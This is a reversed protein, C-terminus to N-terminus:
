STPRMTAPRRCRPRFGPARWREWWKPAGAAGDYLYNLTGIVNSGKQYTMANIRSDNDYGYTVSVGNPLTMSTRRGANDYSFGTNSSGQTVQTLRNANDYSYGISTQETVQTSTGEHQLLITSWFGKPM